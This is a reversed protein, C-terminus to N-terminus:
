AAAIESKAHALALYRAARPHQPDAALVAKWLSVAHDAKGQLYYGLALEVRAELYRPNIAAATELERLSDAARNLRRYVLGLKTRLDAWGPRLKCAHEYEVRAHEYLQLAYYADGSELHKKALRGMNLPGPNAGAGNLKPLLRAAHDYHGLDNLLVLLNVRAELYNPNQRLAEAFLKIADTFRGRQHYVQGLKCYLDAYERHQALVKTFCTEAAPFDGRELALNGDDFLRRAEGTM